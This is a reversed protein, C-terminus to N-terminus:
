RAGASPPGITQSDLTVGIDLAVYLSNLPLFCRVVAFSCSFMLFVSCLVPLVSLSPPISVDWYQGNPQCSIEAILTCCLLHLCFWFNPDQFWMTHCRYIEKYFMISTSVRLLILLPVRTYFPITETDKKKVHDTGYVLLAMFIAKLFHWKSERQERERLIADLWKQKDEANKAM